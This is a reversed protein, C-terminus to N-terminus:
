SYGLAGSEAGAGQLPGPGPVAPLSGSPLSRSEEAQVAAKVM